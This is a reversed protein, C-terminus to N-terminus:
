FGTFLRDLARRIDDEFRILSGVAHAAPRQDIAGIREDALFRLVKIQDPTLRREFRLAGDREFADRDTM